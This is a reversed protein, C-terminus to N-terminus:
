VSVRRVGLNSKRRFFCERVPGGRTQYEVTFFRNQPHIYVVTAARQKAAAKTGSLHCFVRHETKCNRTKRFQELRYIAKEEFFHTLTKITEDDRLIDSIVRVRQGVRM